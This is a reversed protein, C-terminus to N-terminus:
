PRSAARQQHVAAATAGVPTVAAHPGLGPGTGNYFRGQWLQGTVDSYTGEGHMRDHRWQGEYWSGDPWCYKGQGDFRNEYFTGEYSAGSSFKVTGAGHMADDKWGGDYSLFGDAFAGTGHRKVVGGERRVFQGTYRANDPFVFTGNDEVPQAKDKNDEEKKEDKKKPPM